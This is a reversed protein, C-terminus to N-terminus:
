QEVKVEGTLVPMARLRGGLVDCAAVVGALVPIAQPVASLLERAGVDGELVPADRLPSRMLVPASEFQILLGWECNGWEARGWEGSTQM